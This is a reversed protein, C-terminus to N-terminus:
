RGGAGSRVDSEALAPSRASSASPGPRARRRLAAGDVRAVVGAARGAPHGARRRGRLTSITLQYDAFESTRSSSTTWSSSTTSRSSGRPRSAGRIASRRIARRCRTASSRSCPDMGGFEPVDIMEGMFYHDYLGVWGGPGCCGTSSPSSAIRTSGTCARAVRPRTSRRTPSRSGNPTRSSIAFLEPRPRAARLMEPSADVGSSADRSRVSRSRRCAPAARSTSVPARDARRGVIAQIRQSRVRIISRDAATTSRASARRRSRIRSGRDPPPPPTVCIRRGPAFARTRDARRPARAPATPSCVPVDLARRPRRGRDGHLARRSEVAPGARWLLYRGIRRKYAVLDVGFDAGLTCCSPRRKSGASPRSSSTDSRRPRCSPRPGTTTPRRANRPLRRPCTGDERVHADGFQRGRGEDDVRTANVCLRSVMVAASARARAQARVHLRVLARRERALLRVAAVDAERARRRALQETQRAGPEGVVEEEGVLRDVVVRSRASASHPARTVTATSESAVTSAAARAVPDALHEDVHVDTDRAATDRDVAGAREGVECARAPERHEARHAVLPVRHENGIAGLAGREGVLRHRREGGRVLGDAAVIREPPPM